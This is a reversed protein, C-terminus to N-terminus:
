GTNTKSGVFWLSVDLAM